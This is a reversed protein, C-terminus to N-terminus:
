SRYDKMISELYPLDSLGTDTLDSRIAPVFFESEIRKIEIASTGKPPAPMEFRKAPAEDANYAVPEERPKGESKVTQKTGDKSLAAIEAARKAM